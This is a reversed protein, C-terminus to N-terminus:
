ASPLVMMGLGVKALTIVLLNLAFSDGVVAFSFM